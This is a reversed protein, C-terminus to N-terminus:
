QRALGRADAGPDRTVPTCEQTHSTGGSLVRSPYGGPRTSPGTRRLLGAVAGRDRGGRIDVGPFRARPWEVWWDSPRGCLARQRSTLVPVWPDLIGSPPSPDQHRGGSRAFLLPALLTADGFPRGPGPSGPGTPEPLRLRLLVQPAVQQRHRDASRETTVGTGASAKM